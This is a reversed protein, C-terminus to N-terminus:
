QADDAGPRRTLRRLPLALLALLLMGRSLPSRSKAPKSPLVAPTSGRRHKHTRWSESDSDSDESWDEDSDDSDDSDDSSSDDDSSGWDSTDDSWDEDSSGPDSPGSSSCSEDSALDAFLIVGSGDCSESSSGHEYVVENGPTPSPYSPGAASPLPADRQPDVAPSECVTSTAQVWPSKPARDVQRLATHQPVGGLAAVSRVLSTRGPVLGSLFLAADNASGCRLVDAGFAGAPPEPCLGDTTYVKGMACSPAVPAGQVLAKTVEATCAAGKTAETNQAAAMAFYRALAPRIKTTTGPVPVEFFLSSHSATELAFTGPSLSLFHSRADAYNSGSPSWHVLAPPLAIAHEPTVHERGLTFLVLRSTPTANANDFAFVTEGESAEQVRLTPVRVTGPAAAFGLVLIKKGGLRAAEFVPSPALPEGLGMNRFRTNAASRDSVADAFTLKAMAGEPGDRVVDIHKPVDCAGPVAPPLVRPATAEDLADLWAESAVDVRAHADIIMYAGFAAQQSQVEARTWRVPTTSHPAM